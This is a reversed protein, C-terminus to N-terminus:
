IYKRLRNERNLCKHSIFYYEMAFSFDYKELHVCIAFSNQIFLSLMGKFAEQGSAYQYSNIETDKRLAFWIRLIIYLRASNIKCLFALGKCIKLMM